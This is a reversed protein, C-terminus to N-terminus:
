LPGQPTSLQGWFSGGGSAIPLHSLTGSSLGLGLQQLSSGPAAAGAPPGWISGPQFPYIPTGLLDNGASLEQGMSSLPLADSGTSLQRHLAPLSPTAAVM